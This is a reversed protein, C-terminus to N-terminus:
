YLEIVFPPCDLMNLTSDKESLLQMIQSQKSKGLLESSLTLAEHKVDKLKRQLNDIEAIRSECSFRLGISVLSFVLFFIVFPLLRLMNDKTLFNGSIVDRVSFKTNGHFISKETFEKAESIAKKFFNAM